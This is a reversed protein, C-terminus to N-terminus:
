NDMGAMKGLRAMLGRWGEERGRKMRRRLRMLWPGAFLLGVSVGQGERFSFLFV